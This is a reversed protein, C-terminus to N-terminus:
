SPGADSGSWRPYCQWWCVYGATVGVDGHLRRLLPLPRLLTKGVKGNCDDVDRLFQGDLPRPYSVCVDCCSLGDLAVRVGPYAGLGGGVGSWRPSCECVGSCDGAPWVVGAAPSLGGGVVGGGGGGGDVFVYGATVGVVIIEKFFM